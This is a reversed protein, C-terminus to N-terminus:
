IASDANGRTMGVTFARMTGAANRTTLAFTLEDKESAWLCVVDWENPDKSEELLM